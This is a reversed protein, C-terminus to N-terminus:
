RLYLIGNYVMHILMCIFINREKEYIMASAIGLGVYPIMEILFTGVKMTEIHMMFHIFGFLIASIIVAIPCNIKRFTHYIIGRFVLEESFPGLFMILFFTPIPMIESINRIASENQTQIFHGGRLIYTILTCVFMTIFFIFVGKIVTKVIKRMRIKKIENISEIIFNKLVLIIIICISVQYLYNAILYSIDENKNINFFSILPVFFLQKSSMFLPIIITWGFLLYKNNIIKM